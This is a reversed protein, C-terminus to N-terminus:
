YNDLLQRHRANIYAGSDVLGDITLYNVGWNGTSPLAYAKAKQAPYNTYPYITTPGTVHSFNGLQIRHDPATKKSKSLSARTKYQSNNYEPYENLYNKQVKPTGDNPSQNPSEETTKEGDYLLTLTKLNKSNGGVYLPTLFHYDTNCNTVFKAM